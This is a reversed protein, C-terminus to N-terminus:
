EGHGHSGSDEGRLAVGGAQPAPRAAHPRNLLLVYLVLVQTEVWHLATGPCGSAAASLAIARRPM